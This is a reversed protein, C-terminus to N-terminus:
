AVQTLHATLTALAEARRKAVPSLRSKKLVRLGLGM